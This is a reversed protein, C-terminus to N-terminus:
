SPDIHFTNKFVRGGAQTAAADHLYVGSYYLGLIVSRLDPTKV